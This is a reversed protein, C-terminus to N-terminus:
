CQVSGTRSSARMRRHPPPSLSRWFPASRGRQPPRRQRKQPPMWPMPALFAQWAAKEAANMRHGKNGDMHYDMRNCHKYFTPLSVGMMKAVASGSAHYRQALSDLYEKQTPQSLRRFDAWLVPSDMNFVIVDGNMKKWQSDTLHDSPLSCKKSKSGRKRNFAGRAIRKRVMVDYEFDNM